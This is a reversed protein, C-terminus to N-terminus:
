SKTPLLANAIGSLRNHFHASTRLNERLGVGKWSGDIMKELLLLSTSGSESHLM